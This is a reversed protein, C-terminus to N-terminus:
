ANPLEIHFTAGQGPASEAWIRGEMREVAKHVLALGIGTGPIQEQRHLRQFMGFIRDHYRMDFGIGQDGMSLLVRDGEARAEIRIRPSDDRPTFKLANDM